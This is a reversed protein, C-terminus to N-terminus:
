GLALVAAVPRHEMAPDGRGTRVVDADVDRELPLARRGAGPRHHGYSPPLDPCPPPELAMGPARTDLSDIFELTRRHAWALAPELETVDPTVARDDCLPERRDSNFKNM